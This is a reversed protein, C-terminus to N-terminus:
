LNWRLLFSQAIEKINEGFGMYKLLFHNWCFDRLVYRKVIKRKEKPQKTNNQYCTISSRRGVVIRRSSFDVVDAVDIFTSGHLM